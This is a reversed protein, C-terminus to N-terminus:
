VITGGGLLIDRDYFVGAQGSAIGREKKALEVLVKKEDIQHVICPVPEMNHRIQVTTKLPKNIYNFPIFNIDDLYFKDSYLDAKDGIYVSNKEIDKSVVYAPYGLAIDLGKRQGITYRIQGKHKGLIKGTRVDIFNGPLFTKKTWNEIFDFYRGEKVFCIDQSDKKDHVTFNNERAIERIESKNYYGLPFDIKKLKEQNLMYLFYTQDKKKDMARKLLYKKAVKDFEVKAYHGTILIDMNFLSMKKFLVQYKLYKNCDICPNPTRGNKYEHIFKEIVFKRFEKQFDLTYHPLSAKFAVEKADEIDEKSCCSRDKPLNIEDNSFLKM